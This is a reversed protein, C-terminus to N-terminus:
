SAIADIDERVWTRTECRVQRGIDLLHIRIDRRRKTEIKEYIAQYRDFEDLFLESKPAMLFHRQCLTDAIGVLAQAPTADRNTSLPTFM